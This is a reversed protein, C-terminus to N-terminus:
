KTRRYNKGSNLIANSCTRMVDSARIWIFDKTRSGKRLKPEAWVKQVSQPLVALLEETAEKSWKGDRKGYHMGLVTGPEACANPHVMYLVCSSACEGSIVIADYKRLNKAYESIYGGGDNHVLLTSLFVTALM